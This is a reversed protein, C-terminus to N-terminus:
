REPDIRYTEHCGVCAGIQGALRENLAAISDGRESATALDAFGAHMAMGAQRFELPMKMMLGPPPPPDGHISAAQAVAIIKARDGKALAFTIDQLAGLMHRMETLVYDRESGFVIIATRGDAAPATRGKVFIIGLAVVTILWLFLAGLALKHTMRSAEISGQTFDLLVLKRALARRSLAFSEARGADTQREKILGVIAARNKLTGFRYEIAQVLANQFHSTILRNVFQQLLRV